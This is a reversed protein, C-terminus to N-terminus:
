RCVLYSDTEHARLHTYSVPTSTLLAVTFGSSRFYVSSCSHIRASPPRSVTPIVWYAWSERPSTTYTSRGAAPVRTSFPWGKPSTSDVLLTDSRYAGTVPVITDRLSASSDEGSSTFESGWPSPQITTM